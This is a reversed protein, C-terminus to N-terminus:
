FLFDVDDNRTSTFLFNLAKSPDLDKHVVFYILKVLPLELNYYDALLKMIKMTRVGEALEYKDQRIENRKEGKGIRYGFTFNRSDPSTTTAVLDGIGAAGFFTRSNAGMANALILMERLGRSILLAQINRGLELGSLIGSGIAFVNKFAGAMEAGILDNARLVQFSDTNLVSEATEIVEMYTSAIVTATPKGEHIEKALNPGSLCGILRANSEQRIVESMTHVNGRTIPKENSEFEFDTVDLGKTGHIVTHTDLLFQSMEKIVTRFEKSPVIPFIVSCRSMLEEISTLAIINDSLILDKIRHTTNIKRAIEKNRVYIYVKAKKAAIKAIATGFSGAGIIGSNM